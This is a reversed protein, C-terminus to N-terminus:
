KENNRNKSSKNLNAPPLDYDGSSKGISRHPPIAPLRIAAQPKDQLSRRIMFLCWSTGAVVFIILVVLQATRSLRRTRRNLKEALASQTKLIKAALQEAVQPQKNILSM